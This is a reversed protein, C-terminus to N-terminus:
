ISERFLQEAFCIMRHEHVKLSEIMERHFRNMLNAIVRDKELRRLAPESYSNNLYAMKNTM